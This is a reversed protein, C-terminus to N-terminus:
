PSVNALRKRRMGNLGRTIPREVLVFTLGGVVVSGVLATIMFIVPPLGTKHLVVVCIMIVFSHTLYISYSADGLILGAKELITGSKEIFLAHYMILTSPIGWFLFRWEANIQGRDNVGFFSGVILGIIGLIFALRAARGTLSATIFMHALVIGFLFEYVITNSFFNASDPDPVYRGLFTAATLLSPFLILAVRGTRVFLTCAFVLYFFM